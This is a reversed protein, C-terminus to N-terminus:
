RMIVPAQAGSFRNKGGIRANYEVLSSDHYSVFNRLADLQLQYSSRNLPNKEGPDLKLDFGLCRDKKLSYQVKIQNTDLSSISEEHGYFFIYKRTLKNQFLSEGDFDVPDYPIRMADLLTPLIDVHSTPL